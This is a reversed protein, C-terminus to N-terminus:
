ASWGKQGLIWASAHFGKEDKRTQSKPFWEDGREPHSVLYAKETERKITAGPIHTLEKEVRAKQAEAARAKMAALETAQRTEKETLAAAEEKSLRPVTGTIKDPNELSMTKQAAEAGSFVYKKFGAVTGMSSSEITSREEHRDDFIGAHEVYLKGDHDEWAIHLGDGVTSHAEHPFKEKAGEQVDSAAFKTGPPYVYMFDRNGTVPEGPKDSRITGVDLGTVAVPRFGERYMKSIEDAREVPLHIATPEDGRKVIATMYQGSVSSGTDADWKGASARYVSGIQAPALYTNRGKGMEWTTPQAEFKGSPSLVELSGEEGSHKRSNYVQVHGGTVLAQHEANAKDEAAKVHESIATYAEPSVMKHWTLKGFGSSGRDSVEAKHATPIHEYLHEAAEPLEVRVNGRGKLPKAPAAPLKAMADHIGAASEAKSVFQGGDASGAPAHERGDADTTNVLVAGDQNVNVNCVPCAVAGMGTETVASYDFESGCAECKTQHTQAPLLGALVQSFAGTNFNHLDSPAVWKFDTHEQSLSLDAGPLVDANYFLVKTPSKEDGLRASITRVPDRSYGVTSMGTEESVERRLGVLADEGEQLHGGPLDWYESRADKLLLVRGDADRIIAKVSYDTDAVANVMPKRFSLREVDNTLPKKEHISREGGEEVLSNVFAAAIGGALANAAHKVGAHRLCEKAVNPFDKLLQVIAASWEDDNSLSRIAELREMLPGRAATLGALWQDATTRVLKAQPFVALAENALQREEETEEEDPDPAGPDPQADIQRQQLDMQQSQMQQQAEFQEQQVNMQQQQITTFDEEPNAVTRDYREAVERLKMKGGGNALMQDVEMDLKVNKRDPRAIIIKALPEVDDGFLYRIVWRSVQEHLTEEIMDCDDTELINSEEGQVSAGVVGTEAEGGGRSLTSLDGGRWLTTIYRDMLDILKQYVDEGASAASGTNIVNVKAGEGAVAAFGESIDKVANKLAIWAPSNMKAPTEGWIKPDSWKETLAAWNKLAFLNKYAYAVATSFMLGDGVTVMWGGDEMPQGYLEGFQRLYRMKGTINEGFWLPVARFEATIGDMKGSDVTQMTGDSQQEEKTLTIGNPVPKWIIEHIQYQFGQARMMQRCLLSYSGTENQEMADTAKCHGYFYELAAKHKDADDSDVLKVIEYGHRSVAKERKKTASTIIPDRQKMLHATLAFQWLYGMRHADMQVTLMEPTLGRLSNYQARKAIIIREDTIQSETKPTVDQLHSVDGMGSLTAIALRKRAGASLDPAANAILRELGRRSPKVHGNGKIAKRSM